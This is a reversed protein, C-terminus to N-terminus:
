TPPQSPGQALRCATAFLFIEQRRRCSFGPDDPRLGSQGMGAGKISTYIKGLELTM